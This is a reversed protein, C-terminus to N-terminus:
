KLQSKRTPLTRLAKCETPQSRLMRPSPPRINFIPYRFVSFQLSLASHKQSKLFNNEIECSCSIRVRHIAFIAAM